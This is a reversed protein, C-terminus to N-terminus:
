HQHIGFKELGGYRAWWSRNKKGLVYMPISLAYVAMLVGGQMDFYKAPGVKALYNNVWYSAQFGLINKFLMSFMVMETSENRHADVMYANAIGSGLILSVGYIGYCASFVYPGKGDETMHGMLFLGLAGAIAALIVPFIRFEPEYIGKNKRACFVAIPDSGFALFASGLLGGILGGISLNGVASASLNNPPAAWIQSIVFSTTMLWATSFGQTLAAWITAPNALTLFPAVILLFPNTSNFRGNYIATRQWFTKAAPTLSDESSLTEQVIVTKEKAKSLEKYHDTTATDTEYIESRHYVTEPVFFFTMIGQLTVCPLLLHFLYKWGLNDYIVGAIIPSLFGTCYGSFQMATVRSGRQHVFYLEGTMSVVLSEFAPAALGQVLRGALLIEYSTACQCVITGIFGFFSSLLFVPRKGFTRSLMAIILGFFGIVVMMMGTLQAIDGLPREFTTTLEYIAPTLIPIAVGTYIVCGFSM